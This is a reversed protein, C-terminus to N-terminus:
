IAARIVIQFHKERGDGDTFNMRCTECLYRQKGKVFGSKCVYDYGCRKCNM